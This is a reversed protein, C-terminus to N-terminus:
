TFSKNLKNGQEHSQNSRFTSSYLLTISSSPMNMVKDVNYDLRQLVVCDKKNPEIRLAIFPM